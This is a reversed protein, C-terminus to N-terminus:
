KANQDAFDPFTWNNETPTVAPQHAKRLLKLEEAMAQMKIQQQEITQNLSTIKGSVAKAPTVPGGVHPELRSLHEVPADLVSPMTSDIDASEIVGKINRPSRAIEGEQPASGFQLLSKQKKGQRAFVVEVQDGQGLTKAIQKLEALGSLKGGGVSLLRDGSRIGARAANGSQQVGTVVLEGEQSNQVMMGFGPGRKASANRPNVTGKRSDASIPPLPRTRTSPEHLVVRNPERQQTTRPAYGTRDAPTPAENSRQQSSRRPDPLQVKEDEGAIEDKLKKLLKGRPILKEFPNDARLECLGFAGSLCFSAMLTLTIKRRKMVVESENIAPLPPSVSTKEPLLHWGLVCRLRLVDQVVM